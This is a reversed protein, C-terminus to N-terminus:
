AFKIITASGLFILIGGIIFYMNPVAQFFLFSFVVVFFPYAIEITSATAAGLHKIGSYILFNGLTLFIFAVFILLMSTRGSSLVGKVGNGELMVLPLLVLTALLSNIFLLTLPSVTDLIKEDITYALGWVVAAGIAYIFGLYNEWGM